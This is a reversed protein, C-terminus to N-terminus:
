LLTLYKNIFIKFSLVFANKKLNLIELSWFVHQSKFGIKKHTQCALSMKPLHFSTGIILVLPAM